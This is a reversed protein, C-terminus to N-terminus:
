LFFIFYNDATCSSLFLLLHFLHLFPSSSFKLFIWKRCLALTTSQYQSILIEFSCSLLSKLPNWSNRMAKGGEKRWERRGENGRWRLALYFHWISGSEYPSPSRLFSYCKITCHLHSTYLCRCVFANRKTPTASSMLLDVCKSLMYRLFNPWLWSQCVCIHKLVCNIKRGKRKM